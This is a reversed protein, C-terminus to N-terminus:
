FHSTLGAGSPDEADSQANEYWSHWYTGDDLEKAFQTLKLPHFTDCMVALEHTEHMGIAKEALGPQPGHPLGSPHLTISGVEVGKRSGFNGSVYYIMEESQLNSHHYPIPVALPDFDLKRPCFSCIVFNQGQFTQHSPPPQHIRGTIPEFDHISFTWPYLYGDWGVVDFPHYDVVYTQYGGRVRVKVEFEGKERVTRLEAPPHIDRHYYPAGEKLMGYENRYRRPIEILGPTEFVLYRQDGEPMFRYTTGRPIVVYDGEKYPVDGFTTELTGSGEHVFVVEDGEGNRFFYDMSKNPRCLSIEVDNNWMLLRRGTIEDGGAKMDFTKFHRHAHQDPVWEKREIEEFGDLKMVRCPSYLHYIISE